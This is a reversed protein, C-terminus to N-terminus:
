AHLVSVLVNNYWKSDQSLGIRDRIVYDRGGTGHPKPIKDIPEGNKNRMVLDKLDFEEVEEEDSDGSDSSEDTEMDTDPQSLNDPESDDHDSRSSNNDEGTDEM